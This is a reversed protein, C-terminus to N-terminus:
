GSFLAVVNREAHFYLDAAPVTMQGAAEDASEAVRRAPRAGPLCRRHRGAAVHMGRYQDSGLEYLRKNALAVIENERAGPKLVDVIDQYVGDVMAAAQNLLMIEDPSKIVRADLM